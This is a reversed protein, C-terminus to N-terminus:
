FSNNMQLDILVDRGGDKRAGPPRLARQYQPSPIRRRHRFGLGHPGGIHDGDSHRSWEFYGHNTRRGSRRGVIRARALPRRRPRRFGGVPTVEFDQEVQCKPRAGMWPAVKLSRLIQHGQAGAVRLDSSSHRDDGTMRLRWQIFSAPSRGFRPSRQGSDRLHTLTRVHPSWRTGGAVAAWPWSYSFQIRFANHKRGFM